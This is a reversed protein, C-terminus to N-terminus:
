QVRGESTGSTEQLTTWLTTRPSQPEEGQQDGAGSQPQWQPLKGQALVPAYKRLAQPDGEVMAVAGQPDLYTRAVRQIEDATVSRLATLVHDPPERGQTYAEHEALFRAIDRVSETDFYFHTALEQKARVLEAASVPETQLRAIERVAEQLASLIVEYPVSMDILFLGTQRFTEM